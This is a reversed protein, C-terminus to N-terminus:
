SDFLDAHSGTRLLTLILQEQNVRYILLWDPQIHCERTGVYEGQLAHDKYKRALPQQAVLQELLRELLDPNLGRRIARKLEKRYLATTKLELM